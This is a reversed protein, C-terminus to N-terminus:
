KNIAVIIPKAFSASYKMDFLHLYTDNIQLKNSAIELEDKENWISGGAQVIWSSISPQDNCIVPTGVLFSEFAMRSWGEQLNIFHLTCISEAMAKLYLNFQSFYVIPVGNWEKPAHPDPTSFFLTKHSPHLDLWKQYLSLDLKSSWMGLHIKDVKSQRFSSYFATDFVNPVLLVKDTTLHFTEEFFTKWYESVVILQWRRSKRIINKIFIRLLSYYISPKGDKPDYNHLVLWGNRLTLLSALWAPWATRATLLLYHSFLSKIFIQIGLLIWNWIGRYLSKFRITHFRVLPSNSSSILTKILSQEYYYGGTFPPGQSLYKFQKKRPM